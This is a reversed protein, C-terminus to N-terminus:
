GMPNKAKYIFSSFFSAFDCTQGFYFADYM